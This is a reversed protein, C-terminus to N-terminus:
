TNIHRIAAEVDSVLEICVTNNGYEVHFSQAAHEPSVQSIFSLAYANAFIPARM